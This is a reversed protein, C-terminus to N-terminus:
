QFLHLVLSPQVPSIDPLYQCQELFLYTIGPTSGALASPQSLQDDKYMWLSLIVLTISCGTQRRRFEVDQSGRYLRWSARRQVRFGADRRRCWLIIDPWPDAQTGILLSLRVKAAVLIVVDKAEWPKQLTLGNLASTVDGSTAEGKAEQEMAKPARKLVRILSPVSDLRYITEATLVLGYRAEEDAGQLSQAFGSWDGYSFSLKINADRLRQQFGQIIEETLELNNELPALADEPLTALILNPLTVLQLVSVNYDQLHIETVIDSPTELQLLRHLLYICPLGTGCGVQSCTLRPSRQLM